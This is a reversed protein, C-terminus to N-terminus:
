SSFWVAWWFAAFDAWLSRVVVLATSHDSCTLICLQSQFSVRDPTMSMIRVSINLLSSDWSCPISSIFVLLSSAGPLTWLTDAVIYRALWVHQCLSCGGILRTHDQEKDEWKVWSPQSPKTWVLSPPTYFAVAVLEPPKKSLQPSM